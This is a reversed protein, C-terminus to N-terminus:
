GHVTVGTGPAVAVEVRGDRDLVVQVLLFELPESPAVGIHVVLVGRDAERAADAGSAVHVFWSEAPTAGAFAGRAFLDGLLHEVMRRLGSRLQEDNPEFVTWQLQRAVARELLLLLRRVSLQRWRRETSLTRAGTLWMGGPEPRFVDVGARHLEAHDDDGVREAVDVASASRENAPGRPVGSRRECRAVIGAAVASPPVEVLPGTPTASPVRLWPHYAAAFSSDFRARWRLAARRRLGPPVDLLAVCRLREAVAVVRQQLAVILELAAPDAPDLRLGTLGAPPPAPHVAPPLDVCPAFEPGAFVGAEDVPEAPAVPGPSYLDPVVISAVEPVGLLADLGETGAEDGDLLRGFVDDPTVLDWRDAGPAAVTSRVASLTPDSPVVAAQDAPVEVLHSGANVVDGLWRRHGPRLGLGAFSERRRRAPAPDRDVVELAAEVVEARVALFGAPQDLAAVLDREVSGARGRGAVREIWRLAEEGGAGRLRVLTGAAVAAGAALVLAAPEAAALPLPGTAFSLTAELRDGWSGENRARLRLPGGAVDVLLETCGAPVAVGGPGGAVPLEDHVVRVVHARRGGEAFFAAVAHPLLGPGEFAGFRDVYEDWGDVAVAVSRARGVGLDVLTPDDVREWAPGRPAVGVFAAVDLPEAHLAGAAPPEPLVYVGPAGPAVAPPTPVPPATM